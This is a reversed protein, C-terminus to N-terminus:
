QFTDHLCEPIHCEAARAIHEYSDQTLILMDTDM